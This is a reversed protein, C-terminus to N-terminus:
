SEKLAFTATIFVTTNISFLSEGIQIGNLIFYNPEEHTEKNIKFSYELLCCQVTYLIINFWFFILDHLAIIYIACVYRFDKFVTIILSQM